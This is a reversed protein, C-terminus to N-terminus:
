GHDVEPAGAALAPLRVLFRAGQGSGREVEIEGGHARVIGQCVSLGLGNGHGEEKTTFFPEFIRERLDEPIGPGTDSVVVTVGPRGDGLSTARGSVALVGGVRMVDLANLFLNLFVQELESASAQVTAWPEGLDDVLRVGQREAPEQVLSLAHRVPERVDLSSRPAASPRGYALLGRAIGAVRDSLGVIRELERAVKESMEARRDALLIRAKASVIAIPNNIEHALKGAVEGVAALKCAALMRAQIAKDETIEQVLEVARDVRGDRDHLPAATVLFTRPSRGEAPTSLESRRVAADALTLRPPVRQRRM